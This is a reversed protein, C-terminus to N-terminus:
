ITDAYECNEADKSFIWRIPKPIEDWLAKLQLFFDGNSHYEKEPNKGLRNDLFTIANILKKTRSTPPYRSVKGEIKYFGIPQRSAIEMVFDRFPTQKRKQQIKEQRYTLDHM